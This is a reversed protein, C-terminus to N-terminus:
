IISTKCYREHTVETALYARSIEFTDRNFHKVLNLLSQTYQIMFYSKLLLRKTHNKERKFNDNPNEGSQSESNNRM